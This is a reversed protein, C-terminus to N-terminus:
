ITIRDEKIYVCAMDCCGGNEVLVSNMGHHITFWFTNGELPLLQDINIEVEGECCETGKELYFIEDESTITIVGTYHGLLQMSNKNITIIPDIWTGTLTITVKKTDLVTDSYFQGAIVTKCTDVKCLKHGWMLEDGWIKRGAECNYIIQYSPGCHNYFDHAVQDKLHCLSYEASLFQCESVCKPCPVLRPTHCASCCEQCENSEQFNLTDLFHCARYPQLFVKRTDAKHWFGEYLVFSLDLSVTHRDMTYTESFDNVYAQTWILQDGEIAWLKGSYIINLRIYDKYFKRQDRQLKRYDLHLTLSLSQERSFHQRTKQPAYSGHGYSYSQSQMKFGGSLDASGLMEYNDIVLDNFQIFKRNPNLEHCRM